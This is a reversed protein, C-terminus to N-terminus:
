CCGLAAVFVAFYFVEQHHGTVSSLDVPVLQLKVDMLVDAIRWGAGVHPHAASTVRGTASV